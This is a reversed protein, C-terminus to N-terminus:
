RTAEAERVRCFDIAAASGSAVFRCNRYTDTLSKLHQEWSKLYQIEDFFVYFRQKNDENGAAEQAMNLMDELSIGNYLPTDVSAYLINRPNVGDEILQQIIHYLMVSKGVRRPGMLILTRRISLDTVLPYFVNFYLRKQMNAFDDFICGTEWWPNDMRLKKIIQKHLLDTFIM